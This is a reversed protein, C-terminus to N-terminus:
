EENRLEEIIKETEFLIKSRGCEPCFVTHKPKSM